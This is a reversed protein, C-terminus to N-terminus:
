VIWWIVALWIGAWGLFLALLLLHQAVAPIRRGGREGAATAPRHPSLPSADEARAM